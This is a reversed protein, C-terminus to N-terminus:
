VWIPFKKFTESIPNFDSHWPKVMLLFKDEWSFFNDCLIVNRDQANDFKAVFFRKAMPYIHVKSSILPEWESTIWSHLLPLSPWFGKFRCIVGHISLDATTEEIENVTEDKLKVSITNWVLIFGGSFGLKSGVSMRAKAAVGASKAQGGGHMNASPVNAMRSATPVSGGSGQGGGHM